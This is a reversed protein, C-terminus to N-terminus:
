DDIGLQRAVALATTRNDGTLVIVRIGDKRLNEIAERATPKIPDSVGIMGVLKGDVAVFMVTHGDSRLKEADEAAEAVGTGVEKMFTATGLTVQRGEITGTVGRGTKSHFSSVESLTLNRSQAAKVVAAALPHESGREVSSALRLIEAESLEAV